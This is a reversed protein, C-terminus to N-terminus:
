REPATRRHPVSRRGEDLRQPQDGAGFSGLLMLGDDRNLGLRHVDVRREQQQAGFRSTRRRALLKPILGLAPNVNGGAATGTSTKRTSWPLSPFITSCGMLSKMAGELM